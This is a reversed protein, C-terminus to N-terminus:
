SPGATWGRSTAIDALAAFHRLHRERAADLDGAEVLLEHAYERITELLRYRTPGRATETVAVLSKDVLRALLDLTLGPAVSEAADADFGGMFVALSPFAQQEIPDLLRYSWDVTARVTRHRPPSFREGRGLVGLRAELGALLEVPSM